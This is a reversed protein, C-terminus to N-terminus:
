RGERGGERLHRRVHCVDIWHQVLPLGRGALQLHDVRPPHRPLSPPLSINTGNGTMAAENLSRDKLPQCDTVFARM